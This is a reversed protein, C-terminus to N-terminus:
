SATQRYCYPVARMRVQPFQPQPWGTSTSRRTLSGDPNYRAIAFDLNTMTAIGAAVIKDDPQIVVSYAGDRGAGFSTTVRGDVDFTSDLSGNPNFRALAFDEATSGSFGAAVIKEDDQIAVSFAEDFRGAFAVIVKGDGDFETDLSGDTNYRAVAFDDNSPGESIRARGAVVIKGDPQIAFFLEDFPADRDTNASVDQDHGSHIIRQNLTFNRSVAIM